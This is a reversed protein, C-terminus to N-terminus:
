RSWVFIRDTESRVFVSPVYEPAKTEPQGFKLLPGISSVLGFIEILGGSIGYNLLPGISEQVHQYAVAGLPTGFKILPSISNASVTFTRDLVGYAQGFTLLPGVSEQRYSGVMLATDFKLLNYLPQARGTIDRPVFAINATETAFNLLPGISQHVGLVGVLGNHSGHKLLPGTSNAIRLVYPADSTGSFQVSGYPNGSFM